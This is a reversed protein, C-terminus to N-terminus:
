QEKSPIVPFGLGAIQRLFSEDRRAVDFAPDISYYFAQRTPTNELQDVAGQWDGALALVHARFYQELSDRLDPRRAASAMADIMAAEGGRRWGAEAAEALIEGSRSDILDFWDHLTALYAPLDHAALESFLLFRYPNRYNTENQLLQLLVNRAGHADGQGLQIMAQSVLISRSEPLIERAKRIQTEAENLRGSTMLASAYWQRAQANDPDAAIAREFYEFAEDYNKRWFYSLDGLVTLASAQRPDIEIARKAAEMSLGYGEEAPKVHYEVMLNYITALDAEADAFRPALQTVQHLLREAELLSDRTRKPWLYGAESYLTYVADPLTEATRATAPAQDSYATWFYVTTVFLLGLAMLAVVARSLASTVRGPFGSLTQADTSEDREMSGASAAIANLADGPELPQSQAGHGHTLWADLEHAYAYVSVGKKGAARHVPLARTEAWRRVTSQNRKFHDAIAQWGSLLDESLGVTKNGDM